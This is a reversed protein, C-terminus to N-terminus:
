EADVLRKEESAQTRRKCLGTGTCNYFKEVLLCIVELVCWVSAFGFSIEEYKQADCMSQQRSENSCKGYLEMCEFVAYVIEVVVILFLVCKSKQKTEWGTTLALTVLLNQCFFGFTQAILDIYYLISAETENM